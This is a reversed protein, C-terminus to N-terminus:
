DVGQSATYADRIHAVAQQIDFHLRKYVTSEQRTDLGGLKSLDIDARTEDFLRTNPIPTLISIDLSSPRLEHVLEATRRVDDWTEAPHGVLVYAKPEIGHQRCTDFARRAQDPTTGKDYLRLLKESGSELGMFLRTGGSNRVISCLDDDVLNVRANGGWTMAVGADKKATSFSQLYAKNVTFLDDFIFVDELGSAELLGMEQVVNEVDRFRVRHGVVTLDCFTCKYPCGRSAILGTYNGWRGTYTDMDVLERAPIPEANVDVRPLSGESMLLDDRLYHLGPVAGIPMGQSLQGLLTPLSEEAEGELLFDFGSERLFSGKDELSSVGPGGIIVPKGLSGLVPRLRRLEKMHFFTTSVGIFDSQIAAVRDEYEEQPLANGDIVDVAVGKKLLSAGLYLIGLPPFPHDLEGRSTKPLILSIEVL